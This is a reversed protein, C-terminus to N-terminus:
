NGQLRSDQQRHWTETVSGHQGRGMGWGGMNLSDADELPEKEAELGESLATLTDKGIDGELPHWECSGLM